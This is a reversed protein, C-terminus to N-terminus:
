RDRDRGRRPPAERAPDPPCAAGLTRYGPHVGPTLGQEGAIRELLSALLGREEDSLGACVARDHERAARGVAELRKRGETTLHVAYVRRDEPHDRREVVGKKELDDLLAVLRSPVISLRAGLAQQSLGPSEALVRLIGAHPASLGLAGMREGFRQAAHAGIQALLFAATPGGDRKM